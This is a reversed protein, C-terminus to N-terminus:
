GGICGVIKSGPFKNQVQECLDLYTVAKFYSTFERGKLSLTVKYTYTNNNENWSQNTM